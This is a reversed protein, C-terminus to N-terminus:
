IVYEPQVVAVRKHASPIGPKLGIKRPPRLQYGNSECWGVPFLNHSGIHEVHSAVIRTSSDLHVWMLHDVIKTITAACIQNPSDPNAAELKMGRAFEHDGTHQYYFFYDRTNFVFLPSIETLPFLNM